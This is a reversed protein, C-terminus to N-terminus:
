MILRPFIYGSKRGDLNKQGSQWALQILDSFYVLRIQFPSQELWHLFSNLHISSQEAQTQIHM